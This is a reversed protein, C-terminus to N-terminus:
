EIVEGKHFLLTERYVWKGIYGITSINNNWNDWVAALINVRTTKPSTNGLIILTSIWKVHCINEMMFSHQWGILLWTESDKM